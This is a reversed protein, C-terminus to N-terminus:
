KPVGPLLPVAPPKTTGAKLKNQFDAEQMSQISVCDAMLVVRVGNNATSTYALITTGNGVAPNNVDLGWVCTMKGDKIQQVAATEDPTSASKMLEDPGSPGKKNTTCYSRYATGIHSITVTDKGAQMGAQFAACSMALVAFAALLVACISLKAKRM